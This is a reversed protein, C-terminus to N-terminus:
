ATMVWLWVRYAPRLLWSLPFAILFFVAFSVTPFLM